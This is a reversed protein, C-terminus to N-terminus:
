VYPQSIEHLRSNELRFLRNCRNAIRANHTALISTLNKERQIKQFLQFVVEGTQNDLAGTPEDALILLPNNVLARAIAVRQQEGGSLEGPRHGLRNGLGVLELLEVGLKEDSNHGSILRPMMVNELATFEPLLNHFQFVFGISRRRFKALEDLSLVFPDQDGFRVSGGTPRDITGVIHLLTSKGSGSQGVIAVMEGKYITLDIGQLIDLPGSVGEFRKTLGSIEVAKESSASAFATTPQDTQEGLQQLAQRLAEPPFGSLYAVQEKHVRPMKSCADLTADLTLGHERLVRSAYCGEQRLIGLLLHETGIHRHRLREAEEVAFTLILKSDHSLPLDVSTSRPEDGRRAAERTQLQIAETTFPPKVLQKLLGADEQLLGLLLHETDIEHGGLKSVQFRAFFIVRKAKETYREFM